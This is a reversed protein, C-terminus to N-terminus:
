VRGGVWVGLRALMCLCCCCSVDKYIELASNRVADTCRLRECTTSVERSATQMARDSVNQRNHLRM